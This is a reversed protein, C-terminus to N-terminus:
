IVEGFMEECQKRMAEEGLMLMNIYEYSPINYDRALKRAWEPLDDFGEMALTAAYEAM